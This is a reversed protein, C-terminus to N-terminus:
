AQKEIARAITGRWASVFAHMPFLELARERAAAGMKRSLEPDDLLQKAGDKLAGIDNSRFGDVGNRVPSTPHDNTIVPMGTAMAELLALNYGDEMGVAATHVIFRHGRYLAKLDEWGESPGAGEIEPNVGVLRCPLDSFVAEHLDWNLYERKLHVHNAIRLGSSIEGTYGQYDQPDVAGTIVTAELSWSSKKMESIIVIEGRVASMYQEIVAAVEEPRVGAGEQAIRGHLSSHLTLVRAAQLMKVSLLDTINHAIICDYTGRHADEVSVLNVNSPLPRLREDWGPHHHGQLGVVVDMPEGMRALDYVYAEHSNFTLLKPM